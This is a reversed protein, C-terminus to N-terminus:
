LTAKIWRFYRPRIRFGGFHHAELLAITIKRLVQGKFGDPEEGWTKTRDAGEQPVVAQEMEDLMGGTRGFKVVEAKQCKGFISSREKISRM